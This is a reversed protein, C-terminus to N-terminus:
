TGPEPGAHRSLHRAGAARRPAGRPRAPPPVRNGDPGARRTWRGPADAPVPRAVPRLRHAGPRGVAPRDVAPVRPLYRDGRDPSDAGGGAPAMPGVRARTGPGGGCRHGAPPPFGTARACRARLRHPGRLGRSRDRLRRPRLSASADTGVRALGFRYHGGSEAVSGARPPLLPRPTEPVGHGQPAGIFGVVGSLIRFTASMEWPPAPLVLRASAISKSAPAIERSPLTSAPVVARSQSGSSCLRLWLMLRAIPEMSCSPTRM